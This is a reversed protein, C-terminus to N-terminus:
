LREIDRLTSHAGQKAFENQCLFQCTRACIGACMGEGDYSDTVVIFILTCWFTLPEITLRIVLLILLM